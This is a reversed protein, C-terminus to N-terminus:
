KQAPEIMVRMRRKWTVLLWGIFALTPVKVIMLPVSSWYAEVGRYTVKGNMSRSEPIWIMTHWDLVWILVVITMYMLVYPAAVYTVRLFRSNSEGNSVWWGITLIFSLLSYAVFPFLENIFTGESVNLIALPWSIAVIYLIKNIINKM